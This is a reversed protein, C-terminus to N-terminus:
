NRVLTRLEKGDTEFIVRGNEATSFIKIDRVKLRNVVEPAPHGYRNDKGASIVTYEPSTANLFIEGTSTKSGHHGPKLVDVDLEEGKIRALSVLYNEIKQPSDGTLMFSHEGFRLIGVISSENTETGAPDKDPYLVTFIVGDGLDVVTGRRVIVIPIKKKEVASLMEDDITNTKSHNGTEAFAGVRFRKLVDPVSGIHDADAHTALVVDIDRDAWPMVAGLERLVKRDRPGADILMDNGHPTRIYIADGQGVNLFAVQLNGGPRVSAWWTWVVINLATLTILVVARRKM